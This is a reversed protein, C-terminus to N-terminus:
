QSAKKLDEEQAAQSPVGLQRRLTDSILERDYPDQTLKKGDGVVQTGYIQPKQVSQLYRDLTASAIWLGLGDGRAAAVIALTHALLYDEPKQGHQFVFAAERFDQGTHLQGEALLKRTALRRERDNKSVKDWDLNSADDPRDQQDADFIRMMEPNSIGTDDLYYVHHPEWNNAVTPHQSLPVQAVTWPDLAKGEVIKRLEAQTDSAVAMEFHEENKSSPNRSLFILKGQKVATEVIVEVTSDATIELFNTGLLQYHLPRHLTGSVKGKEVQINLVMFTRQGLKMVWQGAYDKATEGRSSALCPTTCVVLALFFFLTCRVTKM